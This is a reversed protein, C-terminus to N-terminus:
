ILIQDIDQTKVKSFIVIKFLSAALLIHVFFESCCFQLKEAM